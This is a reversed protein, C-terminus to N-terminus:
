QINQSIKQLNKQDKKTYSFNIPDIDWVTIKKKKTKKNKTRVVVKDLLLSLREWDSKDKIEKIQPNKDEYEFYSINKSKFIHHFEIV